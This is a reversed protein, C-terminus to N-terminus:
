RLLRTVDNVVAVSMMMLLIVFGVKQLRETWTLTVPKGSLAEWLYYMLHGGDLIPLPLLNLVGLSISMLALFLLFQTPGMAASKGAYDAITIPGSLNNLSAKGVVIQGLVRLTLASTEWTHALAEGVGDLLGYQVTTMALPSGIGARIRGIYQDGERERAPKVTVTLREGGRDLQWTQPLPEADRGSVRIMDRLQGADVIDTQDVRLVVDGTRLQALAAAGDPLITSIQAQSYPGLIGIRAFLQANADPADVESLALVVAQTNRAGPKLFEVQVNRHELAGRAMWWRFKEFSQVPELEEGEYGAQVVREGGQLGAIALVTGQSPRALLAQPQDVGIWNVVSYLIVALLLNAIPGAAVIAARSRLPKTNFALASESDDVPGEREDLMKVYGGIPLVGVVYETGTTTSTWGALRPGFGVSFRLVKVGCARAVSFHGWEHVAVLVAIAIIFAVLTLMM